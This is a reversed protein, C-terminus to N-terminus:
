YAFAAASGTTSQIAVGTCSEDATVIASLRASRIQRTFDPYDILELSGDEHEVIASQHTVWDGSNMYRIDGIMRDAPAHFYGCIVGDCEFRKAWEILQVEFASLIQTAALRRSESRDNRPLSRNKPFFWKGAVQSFCLWSRQCVSVIRATLSPVPSSAALGGGHLVLYRKGDAACHIHHNHLDAVGLTLALHNGGSDDQDGRIYILETNEKRSKKLLAQVVRSHRRRWRFRRSSGNFGDIFDGNLVLKRCRIQKLFAAVEHAKSEVSGLHLDSLILTRCTLIGDSCTAAWSKGSQVQHGAVSSLIREFNLTIASWGQTMATRRAAHGISPDALRQLAAKALEIFATADGKPAKLGNIEHRVHQASAAYDYSVTILGSAMAELLVNGFTESESPFLMIDASAYHRALDEGLRVGAFLIDPHEAELRARAPGDGVILMKAGPAILSAQRFAKIAVELNKEGSVRGV